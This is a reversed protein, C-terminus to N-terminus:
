YKILRLEGVAWVSCGQVRHLKDLSLSSVPVYVRIRFRDHYSLDLQAVAKVKEVQIKPGVVQAAGVRLGHSAVSM